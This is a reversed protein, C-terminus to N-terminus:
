TAWVRPVVAAKGLVLPRLIEWAGQLVRRAEVADEGRYRVVLVGACQSVAVLGRRVPLERIPEVAEAVEGACLLTGLVPMGALGWPELLAEGEFRGQEVLLPVGDRWLELRQQFRGRRFVEDCAPRGLCVVEWGLFRAAGALEVRLGAVARADEFVITEQPLWELSAGDAVRLSVWQGGERGDSRYFKGAAPTTILASAGSEVDAEISLTDGGVVGGPPHLLYIHPTGDSEPYFPRQIRLPGSHSAELLRSQGHSHAIRLRLSAPWTAPVTSDPIAM